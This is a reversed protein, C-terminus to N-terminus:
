IAYEVVTYWSNIEYLVSTDRSILLCFCCTYLSILLKVSLSSYFYFISIVFILGPFRIYHTIIDLNIQAKNYIILIVDTNKTYFIMHKADLLTKIHTREQSQLFIEGILESIAVSEDCLVYFAQVGVDRNV